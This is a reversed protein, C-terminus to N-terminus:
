DKIHKINEKIYNKDFIKFYTDFYEDIGADKSTSLLEMETGFYNISEDLLKYGNKIYFAKRRNRIAYDDAGKFSTSEIEIMLDAYKEKLIALTESGLGQGRFNPDIAFYSLLHLDDNLYIVALGLYTDMKKFIEIDILGEQYYKYLKAIEIREEPPFASQYLNEFYDKNAYNLSELQM